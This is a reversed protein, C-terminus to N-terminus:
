DELATVVLDPLEPKEIGNKKLRDVTKDLGNAKLYCARAEDEDRAIIYRVQQPHYNNCRIKFRTVGKIGKFRELPNVVRPVDGGAEVMPRQTGHKPPAGKSEGGGPVPTQEEPVGPPLEKKSM